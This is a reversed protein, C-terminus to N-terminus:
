KSQTLPLKIAFFFVFGIILLFGFAIPMSMIRSYSSIFEQVGGWAEQGHVLQVILNGIPGSMLIGVMIILASTSLFRAKFPTLQM